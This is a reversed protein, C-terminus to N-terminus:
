GRAEGVIQGVFVGGAELGREGFIGGGDGDDVVGGDGVEVFEAEEGPDGLDAPGAVGVIEAAGVENIRGPEM